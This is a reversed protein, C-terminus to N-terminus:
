SSGGTLGYPSAISTHPLRVPTVTAATM